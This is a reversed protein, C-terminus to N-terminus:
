DVLYKLWLGRILEKNPYTKIKMTLEAIDSLNKFFFIFSTSGKEYSSLVNTFVSLLAIKSM